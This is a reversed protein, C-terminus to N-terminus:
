ENPKTSITLLLAIYSTLFIFSAIAILVTIVLGPLFTNGIFAVLLLGLSCLLLLKFLKRHAMSDSLEKASNSTTKGSAKGSAKRTTTKSEAGQLIQEIEKQYQKGM